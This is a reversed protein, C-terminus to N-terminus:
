FSLWRCVLICTCASLCVCPCLCLCVSVCGCGCMRGNGGGARVQQTSSRWQTSARSSAFSLTSPTSGFGRRRTCMQAVLRENSWHVYRRALWDVCRTPTLSLSLGSRARACACVCVCVSVSVSVCVCVCVCVSVSVCVCVCLCLCVSVSVSVCVSVCVCLPAASCRAHDRAVAERQHCRPHKPRAQCADCRLCVFLSLCMACIIRCSKACRHVSVSVCVCVCLCVFVFACM